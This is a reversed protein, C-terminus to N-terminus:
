PHLHLMLLFLPDLFIPQGTTHPMRGGSVILLKPLTLLITNVLLAFNSVYDKTHWLLGYPDARLVDPLGLLLANSLGLKMIAQICPDSNRAEAFLPCHWLMHILDPKAHGCECM